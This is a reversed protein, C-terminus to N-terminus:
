LDDLAVDTEAASLCLQILEGPESSLEGTALNRTSGSRRRYRCSHCIGKRCGYDPALGAREAAILLPEGPQAQFARGSAACSVARPQGPAAPACLLGYSEWHLRHGLGLANWHARLPQMLSEPGCVFTEAAAHDPALALLTEVTPRGSQATYHPLLRLVPWRAALAQLETGFIADDATRAIHVLRLEGDYGAAQLQHLMARLPTIGSGAAIMLLAEPVAAPLKFDGAAAGLRLVDGARLQDHLYNSVRGRAQRKVTITIRRRESPASSLSYSRVHRRGAIEVTVPVHQGAPFGRWRHNPALVFSRTDATEQRVQLVRALLRGFAFRGAFPAILEDITDVDNLPRLWSSAAVRRLLPPGGGLGSSAEM